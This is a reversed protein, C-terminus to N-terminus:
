EEPPGDGQDDGQDIIELGGPVVASAEQDAILKRRAYSSLLTLLEDRDLSWGPKHWGSVVDWKLHQHMENALEVDGTADYILAWALNAPGTGAYGWEWQDNPFRPRRLSPGLERVSGDCDVALVVCGAQKRLGVYIANM